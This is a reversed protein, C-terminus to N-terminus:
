EKLVWNGNADKRYKDKIAMKQEPTMQPAPAPPKAAASPAAQQGQVKPKHNGAAKFIAMLEDNDAFGEGYLGDYIEQDSVEKPDRGTDFAIKNRVRAYVRRADTPTLAGSRTQEADANYKNAQAYESGAQADILKLRKRETALEAEAKQIGIRGKKALERARAVGDEGGVEEIAKASPEHKENGAFVQSLRAVKADLNAGKSETLQEAYLDVQGQKVKRGLALDDADQKAARRFGALESKSLVGTVSEDLPATHDGALTNKAKDVASKYAAETKNVDFEQKRLDAGQESIKLQRDDRAEGRKQFDLQAQDLRARRQVEQSRQFQDNFGQAAYGANKGGLGKAALLGLFNMVNPDSLLGM